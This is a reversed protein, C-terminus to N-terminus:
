DPVAKGHCSLLRETKFVSWETSTLLTQLCIQFWFVLQLLPFLLLGTLSFSLWFWLRFCFRLKQDPLVLTSTRPLAVFLRENSCNIVVGIQFLNALEGM